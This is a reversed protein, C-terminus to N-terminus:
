LSLLIILTAISNTSNQSLQCEQVKLKLLTVYTVTVLSVSNCVGVHWEGEGEGGGGRWDEVYPLTIFRFVNTKFISPMTM